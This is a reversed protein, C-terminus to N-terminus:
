EELRLGFPYPRDIPSEEIAQIMEEISDYEYPRFGYIVGDQDRIRILPMLGLDLWIDLQALINNKIREEQQRRM